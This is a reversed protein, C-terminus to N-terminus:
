EDKLRWGGVQAVLYPTFTLAEAASWATSKTLGAKRGVERIDGISWVAATGDAKQARLAALLQRQGGGRLKATKSGAVVPVDRADVDRVVLSTVPDGHRDTRQLDVVEALYALPALSPSDKFRERTVTVTMGVPDPREVIYEADPNAMLVSAGRPRKSDGHGAHAVLLATCGYRERLQTSLTSLYLAVATNDNEDLGPAFKSFTDIVVLDPVLNCATFAAELAVFTETANLNVARELAVIRLSSLDVAPAYRRMLADVRRDLGAGEGSLIVVAHGALAALMAWYLAIFSKFSGRKGALVALVGRELIKYLGDLWEPERREAVIDAIPRLVIDGAEPGSPDSEISELTERLRRIIDAASAKNRLARDIDAGIHLLKRQRTRECVEEAYKLIGSASPTDDRLQRLFALGGVKELAEPDMRQHVSVVDFPKGDGVLAEIADFVLRHRTVYFDDAGIVSAIRSHSDPDLLLCGLIMQEAASSHPYESPNM